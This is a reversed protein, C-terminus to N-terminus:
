WDQLRVVVFGRPGGSENGYCLTVTDHDYTPRKSDLLRRKSRVAISQRLYHERRTKREDDSKNSYPLQYRGEELANLAGTNDSDNVVGELDTIKNVDMNDGELNEKQQDTDGAM